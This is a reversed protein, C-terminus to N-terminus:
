VEPLDPPAPRCLASLLADWSRTSIELTGGSRDKTDRIKAAPGLAVEVCNERESYRSTRWEGM